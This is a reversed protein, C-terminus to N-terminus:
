TGSLILMQIPGMNASARRTIPVKNLIPGVTTVMIGRIYGAKATLNLMSPIAVVRPM